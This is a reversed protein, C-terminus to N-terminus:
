FNIRGDFTIHFTGPGTAVAKFDYQGTAGTFDGTGGTITCSGVAVGDAIFSGIVSTQLEDGTHSTFVLTGSVDPGVLVLNEMRTFKGLHTAEGAGSVTLHVGDDEISQGIIAVDAHGRFARDVGATAPLAVGLIITLALVVGTTRGSISKRM